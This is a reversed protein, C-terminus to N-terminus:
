ETSEGLLIRLGANGKFNARVAWPDLAEESIKAVFDKNGIGPLQAGNVGAIAFTIFVVCAHQGLDGADIRLHEVGDFVAGLLGLAIQQM